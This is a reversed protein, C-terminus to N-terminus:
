QTLEIIGNKLKKIKVGLYDAPHGQDDISLKLNRLKNIIDRMLHDWSSEM